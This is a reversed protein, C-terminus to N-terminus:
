KEMFINNLEEIELLIDEKTKKFKESFLEVDIEGNYNKSYEIYEKVIVDIEFVTNNSIDVVLELEGVKRLVINKYNYLKIEKM